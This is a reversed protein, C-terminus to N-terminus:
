AEDYDFVLIDSRIQRVRQVFAVHAPHAEYRRLSEEDAFRALLSVHYRAERGQRHFGVEYERIGGIQRPLARLMGVCAGIESDPADPLFQFLVIRRIM